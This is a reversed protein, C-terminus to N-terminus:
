EALVGDMGSLLASWSVGPLARQEERPCALPATVEGWRLADVLSTRFGLAEVVSGCSRDVARLVSRVQLQHRKRLPMEVM